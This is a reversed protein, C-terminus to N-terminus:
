AWTKSLDQYVRGRRGGGCAVPSLIEPLEVVDVVDVYVGHGASSSIRQVQRLPPLTTGVEGNLNVSAAIGHLASSFSISCHSVM